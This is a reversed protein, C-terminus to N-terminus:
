GALLRLRAVPRQFSTAPTTASVIFDLVCCHFSGAHCGWDSARCGYCVLEPCSEQTAVEGRSLPENLGFETLL